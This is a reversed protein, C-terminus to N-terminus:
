ERNGACQEPIRNYTANLGQELRDTCEKEEKTELKVQEVVLELVEKGNKTHQLDTADTRACSQVEQMVSVQLKYLAKTPIRELVLEVQALDKLPTQAIMEDMQLMNPTVTFTLSVQAITQITDQENPAARAEAKTGAPFSDTGRGPRHVGRIQELVQRIDAL